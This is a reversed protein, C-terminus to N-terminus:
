DLYGGGEGKRSKKWCPQCLVRMTGPWGQKRLQDYRQRSTMKRGSEWRMVPSGATRVLWLHSIKTEGCVECKGGYAEIAQKRLGALRDTKPLRPVKLGVAYQNGPSIARRQESNNARCALCRIICVPPYELEELREWKHAWSTVGLERWVSEGAADIVENKLCVSLQPLDDLGCDACRGGYVSIAQGRLRLTRQHASETPGTRRSTERKTAVRVPFHEGCYSAIRDLNIGTFYQGPATIEDEVGLLFGYEDSPTSTLVEGKPRFGWAPNTTFRVRTPTAECGKVACPKALLRTVKAHLAATDQEM